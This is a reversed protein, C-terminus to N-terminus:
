SPVLGTPAGACKLASPTEAPRVRHGEQATAAQGIPAPQLRRGALFNPDLCAPIPVVNLPTLPVGARLSVGM